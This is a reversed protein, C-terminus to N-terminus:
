RGAAPETEVVRALALLKASLRLGAKEARGQHIEFRVRQDQDLTFDVMGGEGVFGTHDAVTLAPTNRLVRLVEPMRERASAAVYLMQSGMVDQPRGVVRVFVPRGNLTQTSLNAALAEALSDEGLITFVFEGNTRDFVWDPWKIFKAINWLMTAKVQNADEAHALAPAALAIGLLLGVAVGRGPRARGAGTGAPPGSIRRIVPTGHPRWGPTGPPRRLAIM